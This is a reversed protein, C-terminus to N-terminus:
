ENHQKCKLTLMQYDPNPIITLIDYILGLYIIRDFPKVKNIFYYRLNFTVEDLYTIEEGLDNKAKGGFIVEARTKCYPIFSMEEDEGFENIKTEMRELVIIKNLRGSVM